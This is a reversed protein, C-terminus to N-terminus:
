DESACTCLACTFARSNLVFRQCACRTVPHVEADGFQRAQLRLRLSTDPFAGEFSSAWDVSVRTSPEKSNTATLPAANVDIACDGAWVRAPSLRQQDEVVRPHSAKSPRFFVQPQARRTCSSTRNYWADVLTPSHPCPVHLGAVEASPCRHTLVYVSQRRLRAPQV